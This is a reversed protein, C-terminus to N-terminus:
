KCAHLAQVKERYEFNPPAIESSTMNPEVTAPHTPSAVRNHEPSDTKATMEYQQGMEKESGFVIVWLFQIIMLIIYGAAYASAGSRYGATFKTVPLVFDIQYTVMSISAALFTLIMYRYHAYTNTTLITSTIIILMLEYVIIWWAGGSLGRRFVCAGIFSIIWACASLVLTTLLFLNDAISAM